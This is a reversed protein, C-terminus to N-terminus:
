TSRPSSAVAIDSSEHARGIQPLDELREHEQIEEISFSGAGGAVSKVRM